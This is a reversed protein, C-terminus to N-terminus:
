GCDRGRITTTGTAPKPDAAGAPVTAHARFIETDEMWPSSQHVVVDYEGAELPGVDFVIESPTACKATYYGERIDVRVVRGELTATYDISAPPLAVYLRGHFGGAVPEIVTREASPEITTPTASVGRLLGGSHCAIVAPLCGCALLICPKRM